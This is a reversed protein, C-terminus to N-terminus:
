ETAQAIGVGEVRVARAVGVVATTVLAVSLLLAVTWVVTLTQRRRRLRVSHVRHLYAPLPLNQSTNTQLYRIAPQLLPHPRHRLLCWLLAFLKGVLACNSPHRSNRLPRTSAREPISSASSATSAPASSAESTGESPSASRKECCHRPSRSPSWEGLDWETGFKGSGASPRTEPLLTSCKVVGTEERM